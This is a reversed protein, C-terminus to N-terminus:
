PHAIDMLVFKFRGTKLDQTRDRFQLGGLRSVAKQMKAMDLDMGVYKTVAPIFLETTYQGM